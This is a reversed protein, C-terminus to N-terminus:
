SETSPQIPGAAPPATVQCKTEGDNGCDIEVGFFEELQEVSPTVHIGNKDEPLRKPVSTVFKFCGHPDVEGDAIVEVVDRLYNTPCTHENYYFEDHKGTPEVERTPHEKLRLGNVVLYMTGRKLLATSEISDNSM